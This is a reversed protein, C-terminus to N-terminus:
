THLWIRCSPGTQRVMVTVERHGSDKARVFYMDQEGGTHTWGHEGAFVRVGAIDGESDSVPVEHLGSDKAFGPVADCPTSFVAAMPYEGDHSWAYYGVDEVTTPMSISFDRFAQAITVDTNSSPFANPFSSAGPKDLWGCGAVSFAAAALAACVLAPAAWRTRTRRIKM